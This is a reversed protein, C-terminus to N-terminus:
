YKTLLYIYLPDSFRLSETLYGKSEAKIIFENAFCDKASSVEGTILIIRNNSM